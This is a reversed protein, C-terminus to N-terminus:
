RMGPGPFMCFGVRYVSPILLMIAISNAPLICVLGDQGAVGHAEGGGALQEIFEGSLIAVVGKAASEGEIAPGSQEHNVLNAVEGIGVAV